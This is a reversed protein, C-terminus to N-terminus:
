VVSTTSKPGYWEQAHDAVDSWDVLMDLQEESYRNEPEFSGEEYDSLITFLADILEVRDGRTGGHEEVAERTAEHLYEGGLEELAYSTMSEGRQEELTIVSEVIIPWDAKDFDEHAVQNDKDVYYTQDTLLKQLREQLDDKRVIQDEGRALQVAKMTQEFLDSNLEEIAYDTIVQDTITKNDMNTITSRKEDSVPGGSLIVLDEYERNSVEGGDWRYEKTGDPLTVIGNQVETVGYLATERIEDVEQPANTSLADVPTDPSM